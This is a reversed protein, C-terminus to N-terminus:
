TMTVVPQQAVELEEEVLATWDAATTGTCSSVPTRDLFSSVHWKDAAQYDVLPNVVRVNGMESVVVVM